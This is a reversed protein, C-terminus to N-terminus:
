MLWISSTLTFSTHQLHIFLLYHFFTNTHLIFTPGHSVEWLAAQWSLDRSFTHGKKPENHGWSYDSNAQKDRILVHWDLKWFPFM